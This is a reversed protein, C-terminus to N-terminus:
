RTERGRRGAALLAEAIAPSTGGRGARRLAYIRQLSGQAGEEREQEEKRAKVLDLLLLAAIAVENLQTDEPGTLALDCHVKAATVIERETGTLKPYPM